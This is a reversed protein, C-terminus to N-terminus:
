KVTQNSSLKVSKATEFKVAFAEWRFKVYCYMFKVLM